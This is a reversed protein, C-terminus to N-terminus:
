PQLLRVERSQLLSERYTWKYWDIQKENRWRLMKVEKKKIYLACYTFAVVDNAMEVDSQFL